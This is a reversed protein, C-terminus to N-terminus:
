SSSLIFTLALIMSILQILLGPIKPARGQHNHQWLIFKKLWHPQYRFFFYPAEILDPLVAFLCSFLINFFLFLDNQRSALFFAIASGAILGIAADFIVIRVSKRAPQGYKKTETYLSPNWHPILDVLIHSILSLPWALLPQKIKTGIAAGILVHPLELM